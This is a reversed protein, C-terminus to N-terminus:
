EGQFLIRLAKMTAEQLIVEAQGSAKYDEIAPALYPRAPMTIKHPKTFKAESPYTGAKKLFTVLGKGNPIGMYATGGPHNISGGYEHIAAYVVSSGYEIVVKGSEDSERFISNAKKPILSQYLKGSVTQLQDTTNPYQASGQGVFRMHEGVFGSITRAVQLQAEKLIKPVAANAAQLSM